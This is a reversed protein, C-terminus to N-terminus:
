DNEEGRSILTTVAALVHGALDSCFKDFKEGMIVDQDMSCNSRDSRKVPMSLFNTCRMASSVSHLRGFKALDEHLSYDPPTSAPRSRGNGVARKLSKFTQLHMAKWETDGFVHM